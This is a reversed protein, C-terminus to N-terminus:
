PSHAPKNMMDYEAKSVARNNWYYSYHVVGEVYTKAVGHRINSKWPIEEVVTEGDEAVHQELGHRVGRVYPIRAWPHGNKFEITLGEQIGGVWTEISNPEGDPHYTRREGEIMDGNYSVLEKPTGKPYLTLRSTMRGDQITDKSILQGYEDRVTRMGNGSNVRSEVHHDRNFYEGEVLLNNEYKEIGQPTGSEHWLTINKKNDPLYIIEKLPTGNLSQIVEKVLVGKEYTEIREIGQSHPFTYTSNGQLIGGEYNKTAVVGNALNTVVQGHEGSAQWHDPQVAVGYRHIFTEKVVPADFSDDYCCYNPTSCGSLTLSIIPVISLTLYTFPKHRM